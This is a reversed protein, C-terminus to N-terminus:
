QGLTATIELFYSMSKQNSYAIRLGAKVDVWGDVWGGVWHRVPYKKPNVLYKQIFCISNIILSTKILNEQDDLKRQENNLSTKITKM